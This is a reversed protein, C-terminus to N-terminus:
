DHNRECSVALSIAGSVVRAFDKSTDVFTFETGRCQERLERSMQIFLAFKEVVLEIDDAVWDDPAGCHTRHYERTQRVKEHADAEPYGFFLVSTKTVDIRKLERPRSHFTDVVYPMTSEWALANMFDVLFRGFQRCTSEYTEEPTRGALEHGIGLDPFSQQFAMVLADGPIRSFGHEESLRQSFITKGSSTLGAVLCNKM